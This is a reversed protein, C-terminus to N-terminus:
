EEIVIGDWKRIGLISELSKIQVDRWDAGAMAKPMEYPAQKSLFIVSSPLAPPATKGDGSAPDLAAMGFLNASAFSAKPDNVIDFWALFEGMMAQEMLISPKKDDSSKLMPDLLSHLATQLAEARFPAWKQAAEYNGDNYGDIAVNARFHNNGFPSISIDVPDCHNKKLFALRLVENYGMSDYHRPFFPSDFNMEAGSFGAPTLDRCVCDGAGVRAAIAQFLGKLAAQTTPQTPDVWLEPSPPANKTKPIFEAYPSAPQSAMIKSRRLASQASDEGRLTLLCADKPADAGWALANVMPCVTIGKKKGEAIAYALIDVKADCAPDLPFGTGPIRAKGDQFVVLWMQNFGMAKIRVLSADVDATTHPKCIVARRAYKKATDTWKPLNQYEKLADAPIEPMKFEPRFLPMLELGFDTAVVGDLGTIVMQIALKRLVHFNKDFDPQSDATLAEDGAEPKRETLTKEYAQVAEQQKPTLKEFPLSAGGLASFTDIIDSIKTPDGKFKEQEPTMALPDNFGSLKLNKQAPNAKLKKEADQVAQQRLSDCEEEFDRIMQRRTGVGMLDDTLVFATGVKRYTGAVCFALARLMESATASSKGSVVWTLAQKEYNPDCYLEIRTQKAVRAILDGVTKLDQIPIVAQLAPANYNLDAIKLHNPVDRRITVGNVKEKNNYVAYSSLDYVKPGDKVPTTPVDSRGYEQGKMEVQISIEQGVRLRVSSAKERLNGVDKGPGDEPEGRLSLTVDDDPLLAQFIQKQEPTTLDSLGLGAKGMLADRQKDDLSAMLLTFAETPPMDAFANARSFDTELETYTNPGIAMVGGFDRSSRDFALIARNVTDAKKEDAEKKTLRENDANVALALGVRGFRAKALAATLTIVDEDPADSGDPQEGTEPTAIPPAPAAHIPAPPNQARLPALFLLGAAGFVFGAVAPLFLRTRIRM